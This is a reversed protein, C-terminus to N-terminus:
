SIDEFGELSKIESAFALVGNKSGFYLPKIGIRDRAAFINGNDNIIFAFMGNLRPLAAVGWHALAALLVETDSQTHFTFHERELAARIERYNYIEGNFSLHYGDRHMPQSARADLDIIALRTHGLGVNRWTFVGDGDPGRHRVKANMKEISGAAVADGGLDVICSIGCM